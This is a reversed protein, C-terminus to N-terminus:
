LTHTSVKPQELVKQVDALRPIQTKAWNLIRPCNQGVRAAFRFGLAPIAEYAWIQFAFPFGVLTYLETPTKPKGDKKPVEKKQVTRKNRKDVSKQLSVLTREYSIRGWPFQNFAELDDVLHMWQLDILNKNEKGLLAQELFFILALKVIDEDINANKTQNGDEETPNTAKNNESECILKFQKEFNDSRIKSSGDFYTDRLRFSTLELQPLAGFPLGTIISFEVASFRIPSGKLLIWVEDKTATNCQRLLLSHVVQAAFKIDHIDLFHGFCSQRFLELQRKTLWSKLKTVANLHSLCGVKSHYYDKEAVIPIFKQSTSVPQM